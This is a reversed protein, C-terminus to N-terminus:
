SGHLWGWGGDWAWGDVGIVVIIDVDVRELRDGFGVVGYETKARM